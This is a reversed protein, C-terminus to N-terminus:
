RHNTKLKNINPVHLQSVSCFQLPSMVLLAQLRVLKCRSFEDRAAKPGATWRHPEPCLGTKGLLGAGWVARCGGTVAAQRKESKSSFWIIDPEVWSLCHIIEKLFLFPPLSFEQRFRNARAKHGLGPIRGQSSLNLSWCKELCHSSPGSVGGKAGTGLIAPLHTPSHQGELSNWITSPPSPPKRNRNYITFYLCYDNWLSKTFIWSDLFTAWHRAYLLCGWISM